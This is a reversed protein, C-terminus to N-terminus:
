ARGIEESAGQNSEDLIKSKSQIPITGGFSPCVTYQVSTTVNCTKENQFSPWTVIIMIGNHELLLM